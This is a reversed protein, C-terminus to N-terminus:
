LVDLAQADLDDPNNLVADRTEAAEGLVIDTAAEVALDHPLGVAEAAETLEAVEAQQDANLTNDYSDNSM